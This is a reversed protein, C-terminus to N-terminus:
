QGQDRAPELRQLVADFFAGMADETKALSRKLGTIARRETPTISHDLAALNSFGPFRDLKVNKAMEAFAEARTSTLVRYIMYTVALRAPTRKAIKHWSCFASPM